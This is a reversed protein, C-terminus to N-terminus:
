REGCVVDQFVDFGIGFFILQPFTGGNTEWGSERSAILIQFLRIHRPSSSLVREQQTSHRPLLKYHLDQILKGLVGFTENEEM